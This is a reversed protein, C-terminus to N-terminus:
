TQRTTMEFAFRSMLDTSTSLLRRVDYREDNIFLTSRRKGGNMRGNKFNGEKLLQLLMVLLM